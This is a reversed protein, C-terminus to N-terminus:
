NNRSEKKLDESNKVLDLLFKILFIGNVVVILVLILTTITM